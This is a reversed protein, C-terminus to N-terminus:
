LDLLKTSKFYKEQKNEVKNHSQNSKLYILKIKTYVNLKIKTYVNLRPNKHLNLFISNECHYSYFFTENCDKLLKNKNKALIIYDTASEM